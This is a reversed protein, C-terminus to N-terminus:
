SDTNPLAASITMATASPRVLKRRRGPRHTRCAAPPRRRTVVIRSRLSQRARCPPATRSNIRPPAEHVKVRQPHLRATVFRQAAPEPEDFPQQQERVVQRQRDEPGAQHYEGHDGIRRHQEGAPVGFRDAGVVEAHQAPGPTDAVVAVLCQSGVGIWGEGEGVVRIMRGAQLEGRVLRWWPPQGQGRPQEGYRM